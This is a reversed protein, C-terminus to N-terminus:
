ASPNGCPLRPKVGYAFHSSKFVISVQSALGPDLGYMGGQSLATWLIVIGVIVIIKHAPKQIRGLQKVVLRGLFFGVVGCLMEATIM